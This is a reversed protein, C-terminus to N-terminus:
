VRSATFPYAEEGDRAVSIFKTKVYMKWRAIADGLVNRVTLFRWSRSKESSIAIFYSSLVNERSDEAESPELNESNHFTPIWEQERSKNTRARPQM